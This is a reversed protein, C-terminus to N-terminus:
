TSTSHLVYCIRVASYISYACVRLKSFRTTVSLRLRGYGGLIPPPAPVRLTLVSVGVAVWSPHLPLSDLYFLPCLPRTKSYATVRCDVGLSTSWPCPFDCPRAPVPVSPSLCVCGLLERCGFRARGLHHTALTLSSLCLILCFDEFCFLLSRNM